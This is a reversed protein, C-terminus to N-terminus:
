KSPEEKTNNKVNKDNYQELALLVGEAVSFKINDYLADEDVVEVIANKVGKKIVWTIFAIKILLILFGILLGLLFAKEYDINM